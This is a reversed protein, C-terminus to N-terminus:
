TFVAGVGNRLTDNIAGLQSIQTTSNDASKKTNASTKQAERLARDIGSAKQQIQRFLAQPNLFQGPTLGRPKAAAAAGPAGAGPLAGPSRPQKEFEDLEDQHSKLLAELKKIQKAVIDIENRFGRAASQTERVGADTMNAFLDKASGTFGSPFLLDDLQQKLDTIRTKGNEIQTATEKILKALAQMKEERTGAGFFDAAAESMGRWDAAANRLQTRMEEIQINVGQLQSALGLAIFGGIAGVFLGAAATGSTFAIFLLRLLAILKPLVVLFVGLKAALITNVIIAAQNQDVWAKIKPLLEQIARIKDLVVPIFVAGITEGTEKLEAKLRRMQNAFEDATRLADGVAGQDTMAKMIIGLRAIAKQQETARRAGGEIGKNLLEQDLAAQKINIGFRDLVEASGSLASIFRGIAEDDALNNFSAFDIGLATLEQSLKRAEDSGFGLGIFFSQFTSLAERIDTRSRGISKSLDTAFEDAADAGDGFVQRFKSATEAADSALKIFGGIAAGGVLLMRRAATAVKELRRGMTEMTKIVRQGGQQFPRDDMTFTASATSLTAGFASM